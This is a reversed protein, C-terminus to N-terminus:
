VEGTKLRKRLLYYRRLKILVIILLIVTAPVLILVGVPTFLTFLLESLQQILNPSTTSTPSSELTGGEGKLKKIVENLLETPRGVLVASGRTVSDATTGTEIKHFLEKNDLSIEFVVSKPDPYFLAWRVVDLDPSLSSNSFLPKNTQFNWMGSFWVVNRDTVNLQAVFATVLRLSKFSSNDLLLSTGNPSLNKITLENAQQQFDGNEDIWYRLTFNKYMTGQLEAAFWVSGFVRTVSIVLSSGTRPISLRTQDFFLPNEYKASNFDSWGQLSILQESGDLLVVKWEFESSGVDILPSSATINEGVSVRGVKLTRIDEGGEKTTIIFYITGNIIPKNIVQVERLKIQIQEPASSEANVLWIRFSIILILTLALISQKL